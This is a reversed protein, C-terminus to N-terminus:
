NHCYCHGVLDNLNVTETGDPLVEIGCMNDDCGCGGCKCEIKKVEEIVEQKATDIKQSITACDCCHAEGIAEMVANKIANTDIECSCGCGKPVLGVPRPYGWTHYNFYTDGM